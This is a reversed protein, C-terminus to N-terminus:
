ARSKEDFCPVQPSRSVLACGDLLSPPVSPVQSAESRRFSELLRGLQGEAATTASSVVVVVMRPAGPGEHSPVQNTPWTDQELANRKAEVPHQTIGIATALEALNWFSNREGM